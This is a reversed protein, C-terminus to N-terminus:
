PTQPWARAVDEAPMVISGSMWGWRSLDTHEIVTSSTAPQDWHVEYIEGNIILAMHKGGRAAIIGFPVQRLRNLNETEASKGSDEPRYNIVSKAQDVKVGYYTGMKSEQGKIAGRVIDWAYKHEGKDRVSTVDPSWFVGVWGLEEQLAIMLQTGKLAGGSAKNARKIVRDWDASKGQKSFTDRLVDVVFITCDYATADGPQATAAQNGYYKGHGREEILLLHELARRKAGARAAEGFSKAGAQALVADQAAIEKKLADIRKQKEQAPDNSKCRQLRLGSRLRPLASRGMEKLGGWLGERSAVVAGVASVDADEELADYGAGSSLSRRGDAQQVVHALEHALLAQGVISDPDYEGMGFAVHNGVTFARAALGRSLRSADSDDHVRVSSLDAGFAAEMPGRVRGDLPRGEGLQSQVAGANVASPGAREAKPMVAGPADGQEQATGGDPPLLPLGETVETVEGTTAWTAIGRGVRACAMEIYERADGASSTEPAFRNLAREIQSASRDAYYGFWRDIYPCGMSSWMTGALAEEATACVEVRLRTLFESRRMQEPVPEGPADDEVLLGPLPSISMPESGSDDNLEKRQLGMNARAPVPTLGPAPAPSGAAWQPLQRAAPKVLPALRAAGRPPKRTAGEVDHDLM